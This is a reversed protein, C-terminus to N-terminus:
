IREALSNTENGNSAYGSVRFSGKIKPSHSPTPDRPKTEHSYYQPSIPSSLISSNDQSSNDDILVEDEEDNMANNNVRVNKWSSSNERTTQILSSIM